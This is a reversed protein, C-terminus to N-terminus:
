KALLSKSVRVEYGEAWKEYATRFADKQQKEVEQEVYAQNLNKTNAKLCYAIYFGDSEEIVGSTADKKLALVNAALNTRSDLSGLIVEEPASGTKEKVFSYFNGQYTALEQAYGAAQARVEERNADTAPLYCLLVKAAQTTAADISVQTSGTVVDYMKRAVLNEEFIRHMTETTIGNAKQVDEPITAIYQDAKYDIDEKEDEDAHKLATEYRKIQESVEKNMVKIQIILRVIDEIATQGITHDDVSINWVDTGLMSDYQNKLFWNYVLYEDYTVGQKGVAVAISDGQLDGNNVRAAKEVSITQEEANETKESCGVSTLMLSVALCGCLIKKGFRNM